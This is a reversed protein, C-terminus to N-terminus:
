RAEQFHKNANINAPGQVRSTQYEPKIGDGKTRQSKEMWAEGRPGQKESSHALHIRERWNLQNGHLFSM